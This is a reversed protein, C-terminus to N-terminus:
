TKAGGLPQNLSWRHEVHLESGQCQDELQKQHVWAKRLYIVAQQAQQYESTGPTLAPLTQRELVQLLLEYHIHSPLPLLSM